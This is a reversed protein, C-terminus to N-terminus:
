ETKKKPKKYLAAELASSGIAFPLLAPTSAAFWVGLAKNGVHKDRLYAGVAKLYLRSAKEASKLVQGSEQAESLERRPGALTEDIEIEHEHGM